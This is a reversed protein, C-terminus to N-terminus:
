QATFVVSPLGATVLSGDQNALEVVQGLQASARPMSLTVLPSRTLDGAVLLSFSRGDASPRVHLVIGGAPTFTASAPVNRLTLMVAGHQATSGNLRVGYTTVPPPGVPDSCAAFLLATVSIGARARVPEPM